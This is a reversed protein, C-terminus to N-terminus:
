GQYDITICKELSGCTQSMAKYCVEYQGAQNVHDMLRLVRPTIPTTVTGNITWVVSSPDIDHISITGAIAIADKYNVVDFVTCDIAQPEPVVVEKCFEVGQPCDATEAKICVTYTGPNYTSIDLM